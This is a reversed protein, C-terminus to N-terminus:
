AGPAVPGCGNRWGAVDLKAILGFSNRNENFREVDVTRVIGPAERSVWLNENLQAYSNRMEPKLCQM